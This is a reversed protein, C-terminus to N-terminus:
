IEVSSHGLGSFPVLRSYSISRSITISLISIRIAFVFAFAFDSIL